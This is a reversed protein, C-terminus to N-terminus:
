KKTEKEWMFEYFHNPTILGKTVDYIKELINKRPIRNDIIYTSVTGQYIDISEAFSSISLGNNEIYFKLPHVTKETMM